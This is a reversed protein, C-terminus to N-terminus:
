IIADFMNKHMIKENELNKAHLVYFWTSFIYLVYFIVYLEIYIAVNVKLESACRTMKYRPVPSLKHLYVRKNFVNYM